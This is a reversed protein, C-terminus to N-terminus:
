LRGIREVVKATLATIDRRCGKPALTELQGLLEFLVEEGFMGCKGRM